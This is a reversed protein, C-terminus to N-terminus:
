KGNKGKVKICVFFPQKLVNFISLPVYHVYLFITINNQYMIKRLATLLLMIGNDGNHSIYETICNKSTLQSM